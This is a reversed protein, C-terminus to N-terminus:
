PWVNPPAIPNILAPLIKAYASKYDDVIVWFDLVGVDTKKRLCSGYFLVGLVADGYPAAVEGALWAVSDRVPM